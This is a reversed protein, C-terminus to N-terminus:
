QPAAESVGRALRYIVGKLYDALFIEGTEDEGFTSINFDSQLQKSSKWTDNERKLSWVTGVCFDGFLYSGAFEPIASGRYVYGGTVSCGADHDYVAVPPTLGRRDCDEVGFCSHAELVSWGFNLGSTGVPVLNVEEFTGSGVDGIYADGTKRDFSFKWPNRLGSAWVTTLGSETDFRLIKGQLSQPDQATRPDGGDGLSLYLGGDPGFGLHGGNHNSHLWRVRLIVQESASDALDSDPLLDFRSTVSYNATDTYNVYFRRKSVFDPPFALGLLGREDCCPEDWQFVRARIDLFPETQVKGDKVVRIFGAQEAVFLRQSSDGAHAIMTPKAFGSAYPVATIGSPQANVAVTFLLVAFWKRM